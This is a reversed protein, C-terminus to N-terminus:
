QSALVRERPYCPIYAHIELKLRHFLIFVVYSTFYGSDNYEVTPILLSYIHRPDVINANLLCM